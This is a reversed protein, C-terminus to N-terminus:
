TDPGCCRHAQPPRATSSVAFLPPLILALGARAHWWPCLYSYLDPRHYLTGRGLSYFQPNGRAPGGSSTQGCGVVTGAGVYLAPPSLLWRSLVHRWGLTIPDSVGKCGANDGKEIQFLSNKIPDENNTKRGWFLGILVMKQWFKGQSAVFNGSIM